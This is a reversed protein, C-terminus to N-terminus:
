PGFSFPFSRAGEFFYRTLHFFVPAAFCLSDIRDMMGGHGQILTGFDKVGRDRKIASMTLGGFFGMLTIALAMVASEAPEFPTIWWLGTGILTASAAGGIFGEWTKNPSIRPAIKHRGLVNGWAYQLVDSGQVVIVLYALLKAEEGEYGPINLTLLAPAHSVMFVCVMLGWQVEATRELFRESDGAVANSIPILVFAYVPVFISFMGYWGESIFYYQLPTIVFFAWLLARHDGRRTPTLTIFERLAFFSVLGFLVLSGVAGTLVSTAFVASMVWWSLTRQNLNDLLAIARESKARARLLLGFLSAVVLVGVVAVALYTLESDWNEM